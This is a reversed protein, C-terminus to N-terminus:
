RRCGPLVRPAPASSRAGSPRRRRGRGRRGRRQAAELMRFLDDQRWMVGKPHGTTGGTYLLFLDDGSRGGTAVVPRPRPGAAAQEYPGGLPATAPAPM